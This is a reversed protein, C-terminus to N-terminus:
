SIAYVECRESSGAGYDFFFVALGRGPPPCGHRLSRLSPKLDIPKSLYGDFGARPVSGHNGSTSVVANGDVCNQTM